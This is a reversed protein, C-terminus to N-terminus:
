TVKESIIPGSFLASKSSCWCSPIIAFCRIPNTISLWLLCLVSHGETSMEGIDFYIIIIFQIERRVYISYYNYYSWHLVIANFNLTTIDEVDSM